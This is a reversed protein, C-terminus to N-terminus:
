IEAGRGSLQVQRGQPSVQAEIVEAEAELAFCQDREGETTPEGVPQPARCPRGDCTAEELRETLLGWFM